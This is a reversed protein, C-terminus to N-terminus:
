AVDPNREAFRGPAVEEFCGKFNVSHRVDLTLECEDNPCVDGCAKRDCIYAVKPTEDKKIM